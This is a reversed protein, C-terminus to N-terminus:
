PAQFKESITEPVMQQDQQGVPSFKEICLYRFKAPRHRLCLSLETNPRQGPVFIGRSMRWRSVKETMWSMDFPFSASLVGDWM